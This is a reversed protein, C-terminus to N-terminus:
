CEKIDYTYELLSIQDILMCDEDNCSRIAIVNNTNIDHKEVIHTFLKFSCAKIILALPSISRSIGNDYLECINYNFSAGREEFNEVLNFNINSSATEAFTKSYGAQTLNTYIKLDYFYGNFLSLFPTICIKKEDTATRNIYNLQRTQTYNLLTRVIKKNLKYRIALFLPMMRQNIANNKFHIFTPKEDDYFPNKLIYHIIEEINHKEKNNEVSIYSAIARGLPTICSAFSQDNALIACCTENILNPHKQLLKIAKRINDNYICCGLYSMDIKKTTCNISCYIDEEPIEYESTIDMNFSQQTVITCLTFTFLLKQM